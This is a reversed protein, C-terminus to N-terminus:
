CARACDNNDHDPEGQTTSAATPADAGVVVGRIEHWAALAQADAHAAADPPAIRQEFRPLECRWLQVPTHPGYDGVVATLYRLCANRMPCIETDATLDRRGVCREIDFNLRTM